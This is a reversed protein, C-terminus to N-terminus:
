RGGEIIFEIRGNEPFNPDNDLRAIEFSAMKIMGEDLEHNDPERWRQFREVSVFTVGEVKMAVEYIKNLFVPQGFTLNDPHFFGRRRDPVDHNSFAKLLARKIQSRFYNSNVSVNIRIDLPVYIPDNIEIDYGALRYKNLFNHIKVKFDEDVDKGGFRDITIFVTYWSGTWRIVAMAKQIEPNRKLVETYDHETVAREQIRFSEPAYQRVQELDEPEMGGRAQMPNRVSKIKHPENLMIRTITEAGVNGKRGNGVRYTAFISTTNKNNPMRGLKTKADGFRIYATGDNEMEVVFEYAYEDSSLLDRRPYWKKLDEGEKMINMTTMKKKEEERLTIDPYAGRVDYNFASSAPLLPDFPGRYTLPKKSLHPRFKGEKPIDGLCEDRVVTYGHDVLVVNGRAMSVPKQVKSNYYTDVVKDLCLPFPLADESSWSIEIVPTNNLEDINPTVETLRVAHSKLPDTYMEKSGAAPIKEEFILIDGVKLTRIFVNKNNDDNNVKKIIFDYIDKDNIKLTAKTINDDDLQISLSNTGNTIGITKNDIKEFRLDPDEIIWNLDNNNNEDDNNDDGDANHFNKILFDKLRDSETKNTLVNDWNFLFKDNRITAFTSGRPLCCQLDGWTYFLIENNASFVVIDHMTEFIEAGENLAHEIDENTKIIPNDNIGHNNIRGTLLKTKKPITLMGDTEKSSVELCVWARANCGDHMFYDLLRAHRRISVRKRATGLYAETAVADQYYSLHDSVYALLELLVVGIDAPNREKWDPMVVSLRDLMLRRFSAFDKAMYDITPEHLVEPPCEKESKCDFDKMSDVKFSFEIKSLISDFNVPPLEPMNASRILRLTYTSFDGETNLRIVLVRNEENVDTLDKIIEKEDDTLAKIIKDARQAWETKIDKIRVGGEIM